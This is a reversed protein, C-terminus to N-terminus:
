VCVCVRSPIQSGRKRQQIKRFKGSCIRTHCKKGSRKEWGKKGSRKEWGGNGWGNTPCHLSPSVGLAHPEAPIRPMARPIM